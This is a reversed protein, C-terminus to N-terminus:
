GNRCETLKEGLSMCEANVMFSVVHEFTTLPEWGLASRAKSADGCLSDVEAPRLYREDMRVHGQYDRGIQEFALQCFERVTHQEGTAIVYDSPADQQLMLWMARVYDPAWGWDRKAELNGLHLYQQRGRSIMACAKAIKRTVFTEGRRPSEHNFLIGNSAHLGYAERYNVVQHFACAKACGYPSRPKFPTSESQPPPASGFMESSSAQYFRIPKRDSQERVAELLRITGMAITETTYDPSDFSVKVHSQGALNYVEDPEISRLLSSLRAADTIDGYHLQLRANPTHPDEYLHDIRSTNITSARRVLGHVHYGEGLLLEALYSGDQGTIGTIFATKNM